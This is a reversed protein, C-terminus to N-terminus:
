CWWARMITEAFQKPTTKAMRQSAPRRAGYTPLLPNQVLPLSHPHVSCQCQIAVGLRVTGVDGTFALSSQHLSMNPQYPVSHTVPQSKPIAFDILNPKTFSVGPGSTPCHEAPASSHGGAPRLQTVPNNSPRGAAGAGFRAVPLQSPPYPARLIYASPMKERTSAHASVCVACAHVYNHLLRSVCSSVARAMPAPRTWSLKCGRPGGRKHLKAGGLTTESM